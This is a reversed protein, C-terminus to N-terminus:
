PAHPSDVSIRSGTHWMVGDQAYHRACRASSHKSARCNSVGPGGRGRRARPAAAAPSAAADGPQGLALVRDKLDGIFSIRLGFNEGVKVARGVGIRKNNALLELEEDSRKPLEVIAGPVLAVVDKVPLLRQGLVVILPVELKLIARLDSTM